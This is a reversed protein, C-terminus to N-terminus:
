THNKLSNINSSFYFTTQGRNGVIQDADVLRLISRSEKEYLWDNAKTLLISCNFKRWIYQSNRETIAEEKTKFLPLERRYIVRQPSIHETGFYDINEIHQDLSSFLATDTKFQVVMGKHEDAYHAWMLPNIHDETFAIIGLSEFGGEIGGMLETTEDNNLKEKNHRNINKVQKKNFQGEFPDNLQGLPTARLM